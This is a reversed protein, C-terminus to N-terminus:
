TVVRKNIMAALVNPDMPMFYRECFARAAEADADSQPSPAADLDNQLAIALQGADTFRERWVPLSALPDISFLEDPMAFYYPRVGQLTAQIAASSGRYITWRATQMDEDFSADSWSVNPPLPFLDRAAVMVQERKVLPHLRLRFRIDPSHRAAEIAVRSLTCSESVLGEPLVICVPARAHHPSADSTTPRRVSGLTEIRGDKLSPAIRLRDRMVDGATVIVDPDYGHSFRRTMADQFPFLVAHSYGVCLLNPDVDHGASYVLREWSHGEFTTVLMKPRLQQVLQRVQTALRLATRSGSSPALDAAASGVARHLSATAPGRRLEAAANNLQRAINLEASLGITRNLLVRPTAGAQWTDALKRWPVRTHNILATASRIGSAKLKEPLDGFYLDKAGSAERANLFHSIFLIDVQDPLDDGSWLSASEVASLAPIGIRTLMTQLKTRWRAAPAYLAQYRELVSPHASLVHLFPIAVIEARPHTAIIQAAIDAVERLEGEKIPYRKASYLDAGCARRLGATSM